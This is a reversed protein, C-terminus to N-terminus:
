EDEDFLNVQIRRIIPQTSALPPKMHSKETKEPKKKKSKSRSRSNRNKIKELLIKDQVPPREYTSKPVPRVKSKPRPPKAGNNQSLDRFRIKSLQSIM